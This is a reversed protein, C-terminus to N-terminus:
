NEPDNSLLGLSDEVEEDDIAHFVEGPESPDAGGLSRYNALSAGICDVCLFQNTKYDFVVRNGEPDVGHLSTYYDSRVTESYDCIECHAM